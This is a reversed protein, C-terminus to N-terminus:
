AAVINEQMDPRPPIAGGAEQDERFSIRWRQFTRPDM